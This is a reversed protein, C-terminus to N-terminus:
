TFFLPPLPSFLDPDDDADPVDVCSASVASEELEDVRWSEIGWPQSSSGSRLM